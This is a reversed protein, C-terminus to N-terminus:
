ENSMGSEFNCTRDRSCTVGVDNAHSCSTVDSSYVCDVLRGEEATCRVNTGYIPGNGPGFLSTDNPM